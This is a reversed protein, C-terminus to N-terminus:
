TASATTTTRSGPGMVNGSDGVVRQALRLRDAVECRLNSSAPELTGRSAHVASM